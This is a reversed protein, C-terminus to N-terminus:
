LPAVTSPQTNTGTFEPCLSTVRPLQLTLRREGGSGHKYTAQWGADKMARVVLGIVEDPHGAFDFYYEELEPTELLERTLEDKMEELVEKVIQAAKEDRAALVEDPSFM